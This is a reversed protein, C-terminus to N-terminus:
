FLDKVKFIKAPLAIFLNYICKKCFLSSQGSMRSFVDSCIEFIILIM